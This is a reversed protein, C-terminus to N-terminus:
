APLGLGRGMKLARVSPLLNNALIEIYPGMWRERLVTCYDQGSQLFADGFIINGGGLKGTPITYKPNYEDKKKRWVRRTSNLSFLEINTEDSWM